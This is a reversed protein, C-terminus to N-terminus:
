HSVTEWFRRYRRIKPGEDGDGGIRLGVHQSKGPYTTSHNRPKPHISVEEEKILYPRSQVQIFVQQRPRVLGLVPTCLLGSEVTKIM